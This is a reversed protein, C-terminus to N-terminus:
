NICSFMGEGSVYFDLKIDFENHEIEQDLFPYLAVGIKNCDARCNALFRDYFGAGYGVRNGWKDAALLPILAIDTRNAEIMETKEPEPIGKVSYLPMSSTDLVYQDFTKTRFDSVPVVIKLDPFENQWRQLLSFLNPEAQNLMPLFAHVVKVGSLNLHTYLLECVAESSSNVLGTSMLSRRQSKGFARAEEKSISNEM